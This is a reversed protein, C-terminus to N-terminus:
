IHLVMTTFMDPIIDERGFTFASCIEWPKGREIITFNYGVFEKVTPDLDKINKIIETVKKSPNADIANVLVEAAKPNAGCERMADLYMEYHSAHSDGSGGM